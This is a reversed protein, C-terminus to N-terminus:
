MCQGKFQCKCLTLIAVNTLCLTIAPAARAQLPQLSTGSHWLCVWSSIGCATIM